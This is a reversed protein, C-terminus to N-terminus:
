LVMTFRKGVCKIVQKEVGMNQYNISLIKSLVSADFNVGELM